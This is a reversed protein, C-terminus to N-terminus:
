QRDFGGIRERLQQTRDDDNLEKVLAQLERLPPIGMAARESDSTRPDVPPYTEYGGLVHNFRYHTGWRQNQDGRHFSLLDQTAAYALNGRPEGGEAAQSGLEGALVLHEELDSTTLTMAAWFKDEAEVLLGEAHWRVVTSWRRELDDRVDDRLGGTGGHSQYLGNVEDYMREPYALGSKCAGLPLTLAILLLLIQARV